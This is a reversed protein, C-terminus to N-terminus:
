SLVQEDCYCPGLDFCQWSFRHLACSGGTEGPRGKALWSPKLWSFSPLGMRLDFCGKNISHCQHSPPLVLLWLILLSVSNTKAEQSRIIKRPCLSWRRALLLSLCVPSPAAKGVGPKNRFFSKLRCKWSPLLRRPLFVLASLHHKSLDKLSLTRAHPGQM